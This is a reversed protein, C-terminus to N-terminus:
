APVASKGSPLLRYVIYNAILGVVIGIIAQNLFGSFNLVLSWILAAALAAIICFSLSLPNNNIGLVKIIVAPSISASLLIAFVALDFVSSKAFVVALSITTAAVIFTLIQNFFKPYKLKPWLNSLVDNRISNASAILLSDATSAITAFVGCVIVAKLLQNSNQNVLASLAAEPNQMDPILHRILVGLFTMGTWTLQVFILYLWKAKKVESETRGAFYKDVIHPQSLGFGMGAFAWGMIFGLASFIGLGKFLNLYGDDVLAQNSSLTSIGGIQWLCFIISVITLLVMFIGQVLDAYVSSRFGGFICYLTVLTGAILIGATVSVNYFGTFTVAAAAWQAITYTGMAFILILGTIVSIAKAGRVFDFTLLDAITKSNQERSVANIRHPFFTWFMLDGLFWSLPLLLASIGGAYGMGVAGTVIFGTNATAGASIAILYWNLTRGALFYEESESNKRRLSAWVGVTFLLLIFLSFIIISLEM